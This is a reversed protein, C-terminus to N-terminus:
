EEQQASASGFCCAPDLDGPGGKQGRRVEVVVVVVVVLVVVVVVGLFGGGQVVMLYLLGQGPKRRFVRGNGMEETM